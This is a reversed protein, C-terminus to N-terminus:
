ANAADRRQMEARQAAIRQMCALAHAAIDREMKEELASMDLPGPPLGDFVSPLRRGAAKAKGGEVATTAEEMGRDSEAM